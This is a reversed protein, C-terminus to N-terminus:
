RESCIINYDKKSHNSCSRDSLVLIRESTRIQTKKVWLNWSVKGTVFPDVVSLLIAYPAGSGNREYLAGSRYPDHKSEHGPDPTSPRRMGM